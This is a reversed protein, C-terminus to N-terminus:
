KKPKLNLRHTKENYVYQRGDTLNTYEILASKGKTARNEVWAVVDDANDFKRPASGTIENRMIAMAETYEPEQGKLSEIVRIIRLFDEESLDDVGLYNAMREIRDKIEQKLGTPTITKYSSARLIDALRSRARNTAQMSAAAGKAKPKEARLSFRRAMGDPSPTAAGALQYVHPLVAGPINEGVGTYKEIRQIRMNLRHGYVKIAQNLEALTMRNMQEWTIEIQKPQYKAM